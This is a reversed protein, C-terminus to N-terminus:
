IIEKILTAFATRAEFYVKLNNISDSRSGIEIELKTVEDIYPTDLIIQMFETRMEIDVQSKGFVSGDYDVGESLDLFWEGLWLRLRALLLLKVAEDNIALNFRGGAFDLDGENDLNWTSIISQM